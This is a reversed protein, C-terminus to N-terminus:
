AGPQPGTLGKWLLRLKYVVGGRVASLSQKGLGEGNTICEGEWLGQGPCNASQGHARAWEWVAGERGAWNRLKM